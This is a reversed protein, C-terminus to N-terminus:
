LERRLHPPNETFGAPQSVTRLPSFWNHATACAKPLPWALNKNYGWSAGQIAHTFLLLFPIAMIRLFITPVPAIAPAIPKEAIPSAPAAL